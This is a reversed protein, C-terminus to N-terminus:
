ATCGGCVACCGTTWKVGHPERSSVVTSSWCCINRCECAGGYGEPCEDLGRRVETDTKIVDSRGAVGRGAGAGGAGGGARYVGAQGTGAGVGAVGEWVAEEEEAVGARRAHDGVGARLGRRKADGTNKDKAPKNQETWDTALTWSFVAGHNIINNNNEYVSLSQRHTTVSRRASPPSPPPNDEGRSRQQQQQQQPRAGDGAEEVALTSGIYNITGSNLSGRGKPDSHRRKKDPPFGPHDLPASSATTTLFPLVSLESDPSVLFAGGTATAAPSGDGGHAASFFSAAESDKPTSSLVPSGDVVSRVSVVNSNEELVVLPPFYAAVAAAATDFEGGKSTAQGKVDVPLDDERDRRGVPVTDFRCDTLTATGGVLHLVSSSGAASGGKESLELGATTRRRRRFATSEAVLTGGRGVTVAAGEDAWKRGIEAGSGGAAVVSCGVSLKLLAGEAVHLLGRGGKGAPVAVATTEGAAARGEFTCGHAEVTSDPRLNLLLGGRAVASRGSELSLNDLRLSANADIEFLSTESVGGSGYDVGITEAGGPPPGTQAARPPSAYTLRADSGQGSITLQTSKGM